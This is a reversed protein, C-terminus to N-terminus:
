LVSTPYIENFAEVPERDNGRLGTGTVMLAEVPRLHPVPKGNFGERFPPAVM